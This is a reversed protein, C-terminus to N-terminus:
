TGEEPRKSATIVSQVRPCLREMNKMLKDMKEQKGKVKEDESLAAESRSLEEKQLEFHLEALKEQRERVRKLRDLSYKEDFAIWMGKKFKDLNNRLTKEMEEMEKEDMITQRISIFVFVYEIVSYYLYKPLIRSEECSECTITTYVSVLSNLTWLRLM